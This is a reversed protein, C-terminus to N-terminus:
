ISVEVLRQVCFKVFLLMASWTESYGGTDEPSSIRNFKLSKLNPFSIVM